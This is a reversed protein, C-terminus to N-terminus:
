NRYGYSIAVRYRSYVFTDVAKSRLIQELCKIGITFVPLDLQVFFVYLPCLEDCVVSQVPDPTHREPQLIGGFCKSM